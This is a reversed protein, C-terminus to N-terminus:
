WFDEVLDSMLDSVLFGGDLRGGLREGLIRISDSRMDSVSDSRLAGM